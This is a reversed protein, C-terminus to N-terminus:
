FHGRLSEPLNRSIGDLKALRSTQVDQVSRNSLSSWIESLGLGSTLAVADALARTCTDIEVSDLPTECIHKTLWQSVMHVASHDLRSRQGVAYLYQAYSM